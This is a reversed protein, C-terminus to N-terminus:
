ELKTIKLKNKRIHQSFIEAGLYNLHGNDAFCSDPLSFDHYDAYLVIDNLSHIIDRLGKEKQDSSNLVPPNILILTKQRQKLFAYIKKLYEFNPGEEIQIEKDISDQISKKNINNKKLSVFSGVDYPSIPSLRIKPQFYTLLFYPNSTSFTLIDLPNAYIFLYKQRNIYKDDFLMRSDFDESFSASHIGLVITDIQPNDALVEELITYIYYYHTASRSLNQWNTLISDNIACETHSDGLVLINKDKSFAFSAREKLIFQSLFSIALYTIICVLLYITIKQLFTRM